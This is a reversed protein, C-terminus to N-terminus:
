KKPFTIVNGAHIKTSIKKISKKYHKTGVIRDQIAVIFGETKPFLYGTQFRIIIILKSEIVNLQFYFFFNLWKTSKSKEFTCEGQKTQLVKYLNPKTAALNATEQDLKRSRKILNITEKWNSRTNRLRSATASASVLAASFNPNSTLKQLEYSVANSSNWDLDWSKTIM